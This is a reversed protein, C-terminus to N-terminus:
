AFTELGNYNLTVDIDPSADTVRIGKPLRGLWPTRRLESKMHDLSSVLNAWFTAESISNYATTLSFAQRHLRRQIVRHERLLGLCAM